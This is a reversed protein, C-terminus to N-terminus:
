NSASESKKPRMRVVLCAILVCWLKDSVARRRFAPWYDVSLGSLCAAAATQNVSSCKPAVPWQMRWYDTTTHLIIRRSDGNDQASRSYNCVETKILTGMTILLIIKMIDSPSQIGSPKQVILTYACTCLCMFTWVRVRMSGLEPGRSQEGRSNALARRWVAYKQKKKQKIASCYVGKWTQSRLWQGRCGRAENEEMITPHVHPLLPAPPLSFFPFCLCFLSNKDTKKKWDFSRCSWSNFGLPVLRKQNLSAEPSLGATPCGCASACSLYVCILLWFLHRSKWDSSHCGTAMRCKTLLGM